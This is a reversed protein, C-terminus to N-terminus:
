LWAKQKKLGELEDNDDPDIGMARFRGVLDLNFNEEKILSYGLGGFHASGNFFLYVPIVWIQM